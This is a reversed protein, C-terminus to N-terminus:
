HSIYFYQFYKGWNEKNSQQPKLGEEDESFIKKGKELAEESLFIKKGTASAFGEFRTLNESPYEENFPVTSKSIILNKTSSMRPSNRLSNPFSIRSAHGKTEMELTLSNGSSFEGISTKSESYNSKNKTIKYDTPKQCKESLCLSEKQIENGVLGKSVNIEGINLDINECDDDYMAMIDETNLTEEIVAKKDTGNQANTEATKVAPFSM